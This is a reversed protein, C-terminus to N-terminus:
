KWQLYMDDSIRKITYNALLQEFYIMKHLKEIMENDIARIHVCLLRLQHNHEINVKMLVFRVVLETNINNLFGVNLYTIQPCLEILFNIEEIQIMKKLYVKTIQNRTSFSSGDCTTCAHGGCGLQKQSNSSTTQQNKTVQEKGGMETFSNTPEQTLLCTISHIEPVKKAAEPVLEILPFLPETEKLHIIHLGNGMNSCSVVKFQRAALLLIEETRYFSHQRIDTGSDCEIQFM